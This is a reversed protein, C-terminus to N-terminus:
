HQRNPSLQRVLPLKKSIQGGGYQLPDHLLIRFVVASIVTQEIKELWLRSILGQSPVYM